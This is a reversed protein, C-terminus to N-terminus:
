AVIRTGQVHPRSESELVLPGGAPGSADLSVTVAQKDNVVRVTEGLNRWDVEINHGAGSHPAGGAGGSEGRNSTDASVVERIDVSPYPLWGEKQPILILPIEAETEPTSSSADGADAASDAAACGPIVFRGKRRGGVLWSEPSASVDYSFELDKTRPSETDWVRTWKLHLTAHLVQNLFVAPTATSSSGGTADNIAAPLPHRLRIDATHVVTLSPVEVPILISSPESAAEDPSLVPLRKHEAQWKGLCAAISRVVSEAALGQLRKEWPVGHLFSTSVEGLLAARELDQPQLSRKLDKALSAVVARAYPGLSATHLAACVSGRIRDAVETHLQTYHLKLYMTKATRTAVRVDSKRRVRYLLGASQKPFVAIPAVAAAAGSTASFLESDLLESKYLRLPGSTATTVNFRSFLAGHKFVDQVNVGVALAVPVSFTKALHYSEDTDTVYTVEVKAFVDDLDLETSFPFRLIVSTEPAMANFHFLGSEPPKALEVASDVVTAGTTLLRLGGSSPKVRVECRKLTNWGTSLSLDLSNNKDLSTHKAAKLEVDLASSHQYLTFEPQKFIAPAPSQSTHVDADYHLFIRSSHLGFHNVKYKGALVSNTYVSLKNKGPKLVVPDKNAFTLEKIPGADVGSVKLQIKDLHLDDPLLSWIGISVSSGDRGDEYNPTGLIEVKTFFLSLPSRVDSRLSSAVECLKAVIGKIPSDVAEQRPRFQRASSDQIRSLEAASSMTLLQLAARVYELSANRESLCQLYMVLMSLEIISWGSEGFYQLAKDFYSKATVYEKMLFKLVALDAIATQVAGQQGAVTYHRLAKDTMIEYLRYFDESNETASILLQSRIGAGTPTIDAPPKKESHRLDNDNSENTDDDLSIEDMAEIGSENVIPAEDWGTSWGRIKGLRSLISRSMMYLEARSAALEEIGVKLFPSNHEDGAPTTIARGPGPFGPSPPNRPSRENLSSHRAPHMMTKPEPISVKQEARDAPPLSSPPIPLAKTNTQALIQQAISFAFSSVLNDIIQHAEANIDEKKNNLDDESLSTIIDHRMVNSLSPIFELTRRCVEALTTLNETDDEKQPTAKALPAVGHLISEQQEKLRSLLQERTVSTNGQRLLLAIQRSFIYCRFDLVSVKNALIMDRYAKKTPSIPIDDVDVASKTASQMDVAEEDNSSGSAENLAKRAIKKLDDSYPLMAGGHSEPEGTEAQEALVLDLGVNLEDYGVLADEVLGVNEFGLALGEKLIFFTCFNWGPLTRQTDKEKIDEEYQTVRKDFSSLILNKFKTIVDNWAREADQETESYGSPVAPVVRPLMDYPVDNIGIRIQAIRDPAGKSSSNFDSRFKELLPTLGTRWRSTTTKDAGGEVKGTSRPQTSAATNPIVVHLILWEYADHNEQNSAKKSSSTPPTHQKIWERVESRVTNKYSDNDDCRVLLVKLYPTRRLGPIQHRRGSTGKTAAPKSESSETTDSQGGVAQTQFGDDKADSTAPQKAAAPTEDQPLKGGDVLEIHLTDISRLPGSHSQWHLNHLPLRPILGPKLLEYVDHPDFYEVTVKSTSAQQEM